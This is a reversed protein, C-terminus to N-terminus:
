PAVSGDPGFAGGAALDLLRGDDYGLLRRLVGDFDENRRPARRIETGSDGFRVPSRM